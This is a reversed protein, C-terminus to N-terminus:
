AASAAAPHSGFRDGDPRGHVVAAMGWHTVPRFTKGKFRAEDWIHPDQPPITRLVVPVLDDYLMDWEVRNIGARGDEHLTRIVRGEADAIQIEDRGDPESAAQGVREAERQHQARAAGNGPLNESFKRTEHLRLPGVEVIQM